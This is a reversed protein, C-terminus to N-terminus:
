AMARAVLRQLLRLHSKVSDLVPSVANPYADLRHPREKSTRLRKHSAGTNLMILSCTNASLRRRALRTPFFSRTDVHFVPHRLSLSEFGRVKRDVTKLVAAKFREAM